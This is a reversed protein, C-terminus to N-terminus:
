AAPSVGTDDGAFLDYVGSLGGDLSANRRRLPPPKLLQVELGDFMSDLESLAVDAHQQMLAKPAPQSPGSVIGGHRGAPQQLTTVDFIGAAAAGVAHPRKHCLGGGSFVSHETGAAKPRPSKKLSFSSTLLCPKVM